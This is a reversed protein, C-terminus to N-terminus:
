LKKLDQYLSDLLMGRASIEKVNEPISDWLAKMQEKSPKWSPQPYVHEKFWKSNITEPQEPNGTSLKQLCSIYREKDEKTWNQPRLSKLREISAALSPLDRSLVDVACDIAVIDEESWEQKPQVRDKLEKLWNKITYTYEKVDQFETFRIKDDCLAEIAEIMNEDEESWAPKQEVLEYDRNGGVISISFGKGYYHSDSISEIIYEANSNKLRITDGVKFKPEVKEASKQECQKQESPKAVRKLQSLNVLVGDQNRTVKDGVQISDYFNALACQKELWAVIQARPHLGEYDEEDKDSFFRILEKRIKEDESEKLEPVLIELAETLQHRGEPWNNRVVRIAEKRDM